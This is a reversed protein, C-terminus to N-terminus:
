RTSHRSLRVLSLIQQGDRVIRDYASSSIEGRRTLNRISRANVFTAPASGYGRHDGEAGAGSNQLTRMLSEVKPLRSDGEAFSCSFIIFARGEGNVIRGASRCGSKICARHDSLLGCEGQVPLRTRSRRHAIDQSERLHLEPSFRLAIDTGGFASDFVAVQQWGPHFDCGVITM